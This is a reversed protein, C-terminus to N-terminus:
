VAFAMIFQSRRSRSITSAPPANATAHPPVVKNGPPSGGVPPFWLSAAVLREEPPLEEPVLEDEPPFDGLLPEDLPSDGPPVDDLLPDDLPLLPDDVPEDPPVEELLPEELPPEDPTDDELLPDDLPPGGSDNQQLAL